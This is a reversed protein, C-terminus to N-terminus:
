ANGLLASFLGFLLAWAILFGLLVGVVVLSAALMIQKTKSM